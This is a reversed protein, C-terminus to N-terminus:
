LNGAAYILVVGGIFTLQICALVIRTTAMARGPQVGGGGDIERQAARGAVIAIISGIGCLGLLGFFLSVMALRNTSLEAQGAM